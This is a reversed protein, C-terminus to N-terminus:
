LGPLWQRANGAYFRELVERPLALGRVRFGREHVPVEGASEYYLFAHRYIDRVRALLPTREAQPCDAAVTKVIDTGWLIRGSYRLFFERVKASDHRALYSLRASTDVAYNPFRELRAAAAALDHDQSGLHAGVVRLTPHRALLRDWAAMIEEHRPMDPRNHMDWKSAPAGDSRSPAQWLTIPDALHMIVARGQRALWQFVPTWLPDDVQFCKGAPDRVDMGINKWVKCAVAGDAFDRALGEIVRDVYDAEGFGPPDFATSWAYRDSRADALARYRGQRGRWSGRHDSAVSVNNAKVDLEELLAVAEPHEGIFHVHADIRTM